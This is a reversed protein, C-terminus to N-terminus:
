VVSLGSQTNGARFSVMTSVMTPIYMPNSDNWPKQVTPRFPNRGDAHLNWLHVVRKHPASRHETLAAETRNVEALAAVLWAAQPPPNADGLEVPSQLSKPVALRKYISITSVSTM